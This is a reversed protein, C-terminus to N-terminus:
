NVATFLKIVNVGTTSKMFVNHAYSIVTAFYTTDNKCQKCQM